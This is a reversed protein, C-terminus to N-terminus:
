KELMKDCQTASVFNLRRFIADGNRDKFNTAPVPSLQNFDSM